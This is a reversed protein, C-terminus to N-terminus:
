MSICPPRTMIKVKFIEGLGLALADLLRIFTVYPLYAIMGKEFVYFKMGKERRLSCLICSLYQLEIAKLNELRYMCM